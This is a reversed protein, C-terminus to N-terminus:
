MVRGGSAFVINGIAEQLDYQLPIYYCLHHHPNGIEAYVYWVCEEATRQRLWWCRIDVLQRPKDIKSRQVIFLASILSAIRYFNRLLLKEPIEIVLRYYHPWPFQKTCTLRGKRRFYYGILQCSFACRISILNRWQDETRQCKGVTM